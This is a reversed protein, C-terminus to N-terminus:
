PSHGIALIILQIGKEEGKGRALKNSTSTEYETKM